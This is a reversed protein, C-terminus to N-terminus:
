DRWARIKAALWPGARLSTEASPHALDRAYHSLDTPDVIESLDAHFIGAHRAAMAAVRGEIVELEDACAAFPGDAVSTDYYTLWVVSAGEGRLRAVLSPIHGRDLTGAILADVEDSCSGCGCRSMLDNASGTLIVWDESGLPPQQSRIDLGPLGRVRAGSRSRDVVSWGLAQGTAEPIGARGNWAMVSDGMAVLRPEARLPAAWLAVIITLLRLM